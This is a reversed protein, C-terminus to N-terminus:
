KKQKEKERFEIISIMESILYAIFAYVLLVFLTSLELVFGHRLVQNPFIGVFPALVPQTTDYIWSVFPTSPNAGFLKLIIRAILLFEVISFVIDALVSIPFYNRM